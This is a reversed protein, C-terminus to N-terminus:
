DAVPQCDRCDFRIVYDSELNTTQGLGIFGSSTLPYEDEELLCVESMGDPRVFTGNRSQDILVFKGRRYVIRAHVRSVPSGAVTLECEESRGVTFVRMDPSMEREIGQMSLVLRADPNFLTRIDSADAQETAPFARGSNGHLSKSM